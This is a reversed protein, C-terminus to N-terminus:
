LDIDAMMAIYAIDARNQEATDNATQASEFIEWDERPVSIEDWEWHTGAETGDEDITPVETFNKRVIIVKKSTERDIEAPKVSSGNEAHRWM